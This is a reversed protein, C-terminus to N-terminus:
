WPLRAEQLPMVGALVGIVSFVIESLVIVTKRLSNFQLVLILLILDSRLLCHLEFFQTTEAM